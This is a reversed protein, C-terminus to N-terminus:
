QNFHNAIHEGLQDLQDREIMEATLLIDAKVGAKSARRTLDLTVMRGRVKFFMDIGHYVDLASGITVYFELLKQDGRRCLHQRVFHFLKKTVETTPSNSLVGRALQRLRADEVAVWFQKFKPIENSGTIGLVEKELGRGCKSKLKLFRGKRLLTKTPVYKYYYIM